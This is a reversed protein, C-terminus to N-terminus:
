YYDDGRNRYWSLVMAGVLAFPAMMMVYLGTM